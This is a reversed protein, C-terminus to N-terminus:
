QTIVNGCKLHQTMKGCGTSLLTENLIAKDSEDWGILSTKLLRSNRQVTPLNNWITPHPWLSFIFLYIIFLYYNNNHNYGAIIYRDTYNLLNIATLIVVTVVARRSVVKRRETHLLPETEEDVVRTPGLRVEDRGNNYSGYDTRLTVHDGAVEVM